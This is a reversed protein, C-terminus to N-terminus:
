RSEVKPAIPEVRNGYLSGRCIWNARFSNKQALYRPGPTYTPPKETPERLLGCVKLFLDASGAQPVFGLLPNTLFRSSLLVVDRM